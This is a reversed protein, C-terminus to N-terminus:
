FIRVLDDSTKIRTLCVYLEAKSINTCSIAIKNNLTLGQSSAFTSSFAFQLPFGFLTINKFLNMEFRMPLLSFILNKDPSFLVVNTLQGTDEDIIWDLLYVISLRAVPSSCTLIKYPCYRILPLINVLHNCNNVLDKIKHHKDVFKLYNFNYIVSFVIYKNAEDPPSGTATFHNTIQNWYSFALALNYYHAHKNTFCFVTTDLTKNLMNNTTFTIAIKKYEDFRSGRLSESIEAIPYTVCLYPSIKDSWMTKIDELLQIGIDTRDEANRVRNVLDNYQADVIRFQHNLLFRTANNISEAQSIISLINLDEEVKVDEEKKIKPAPGIDPVVQLKINELKIFPRLQNKDGILVCYFTVKPYKLKLCRVIFLFLSLKGQSLTYIEDFIIFLRPTTIDSLSPLRIVNKINKLFDVGCTHQFTDIKLADCNLLLQKKDYYNLDLISLFKFFTLYQTNDNYFCRKHMSQCLINTQTIYLLKTDERHNKFTYFNLSEIIASKGCGASGEIVFIKYFPNKTDEGLNYNCALPTKQMHPFDCPYAYCLISFLCENQEKSLRKILFEGDSITFVRALEQVYEVFTSKKLANVSAKREDQQLFVNTKLANFLHRCEDLKRRKVSLIDTNPCSTYGEDDLPETKIETKQKSLGNTKELITFPVYINSATTIKRYVSDNWKFYPLQSDEIEFVTNRSQHEIFPTRNDSLLYKNEDIYNFMTDSVNGNAGIQQGLSTQLIKNLTTLGLSPKPKFVMVINTFLFAIQSYIYLMYIICLLFLKKKMLLRVTQSKQHSLSTPQM